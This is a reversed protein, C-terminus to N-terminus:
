CTPMGRSIKHLFHRTLSVEYPDGFSPQKECGEPANCRASRFKRVERASGHMSHTKLTNPAREGNGKVSNNAGKRKRGASSQGKRTLSADKGRQKALLSKRKGRGPATSNRCRSEGLASRNGTSLNSVLPSGQLTRNAIEPSDSHQVSQTLGQVSEAFVVSIRADEIVATGSGGRLRLMMVNKEACMAAQASKGLRDALGGVTSLSSSRETIGASLFLFVSFFRRYARCSLRPLIAQMTATRHVDIKLWGPCQGPSSIGLVAAGGVRQGDNDTPSADGTRLPALPELEALRTPDQIETRTTPDQIETRAAHVRETSGVGGDLLLLVLPVYM